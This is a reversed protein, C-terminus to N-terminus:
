TVIDVHSTVLPNGEGSAACLRCAYLACDSVAFLCYGFLTVHDRIRQLIDGRWRTEQNFISFGTLLGSCADPPVGALIFM